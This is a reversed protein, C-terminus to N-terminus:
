VPEVGGEGFAGPFMADGVFLDATLFVLAAVGWVAYLGPFRRNRKALLVLLVVPMVVLLVLNLGIEAVLFAKQRGSLLHIIEILALSDGLLLLGRLPTVLLGILPLLLWGGIGEPGDRAPVAPVQVESM